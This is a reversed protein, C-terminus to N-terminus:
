TNLIHPLHGICGEYIIRGQVHKFDTCSHKLTSVLFSTQDMVSVAYFFMNPFSFVLWVFFPVLLFISASVKALPEWIHLFGPNLYGPVLSM